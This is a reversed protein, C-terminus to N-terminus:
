YGIIISGADEDAPIAISGAALVICEIFKLGPFDINSPRMNRGVVDIKDGLKYDRMCSTNLLYCQILDVWIFSDTLGSLMHDDVVIDKFVYFYNDYVSKAIEINGYSTYYVNVLEVPNVELCSYYEPASTDIPLVPFSKM